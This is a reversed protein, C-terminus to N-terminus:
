RVAWDPLPKMPVHQNAYQHTCDGLFQWVGAVLFSHCVFLGADVLEGEVWRRTHETRTLISPSLTPAELNGDFNWSPGPITGSGAIPLAHLGGAPEPDGDRYHECGPCWLWIHKYKWEGHVVDTVQAVPNTM